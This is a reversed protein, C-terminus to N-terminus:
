GTQQASEEELVWKNEQGLSYFSVRKDISVFQYYQRFEHHHIEHWMDAHKIHNTEQNRRQKMVELKKAWEQWLPKALKLDEQYAARKKANEARIKKNERWCRIEEIFLLVIVINLIIGCVVLYTNM